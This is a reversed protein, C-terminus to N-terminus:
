HFIKSFIPFLIYIWITVAQLKYCTTLIFILNSVWKQTIYKKGMVTLLLKYGDFQYVPLLNYLCSFFIILFCKKLPVWNLLLYSISYIVGIILQFYIGGLDIAIKQIKNLQSSSLTKNYFVPLFSYIAFGIEGPSIRYKLRASAHGLEHFIKSFLNLLIIWFVGSVSIDDVSINYTLFYLCSFVIILIFGLGLAFHSFLISLLHAIKRTINEPLVPIVCYLFGTLKKTINEPLIPIVCCLKNM